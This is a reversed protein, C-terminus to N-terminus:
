GEDSGIEKDKTFRRIGLLTAAAYFMAVSYMLVHEINSGEGYKTIIAIGAVLFTLISIMGGFFGLVKATSTRGKSDNFMEAWSFKHLDVKM